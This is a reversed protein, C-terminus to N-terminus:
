EDIVPSNWLLNTYTEGLSEKIKNIENIEDATQSLSWSTELVDGWQIPDYGLEKLVMNTTFIWATKYGTFIKMEELQNKTDISKLSIHDVIDWFFPRLWKRLQKIFQDQLPKVVHRNFNEQSVESSARNSSDAILMDYPMNLAISIAKILDIRYQLLWKVDVKNELDLQKLETPVIATTFSNDDGRLRDKITEQIIKISDESLEANVDMLLKTNIMGHDFFREYHKDIADLVVIQRVCKTFISDGYYRTKLSRAKLHIYRGPLFEKEWHSNIQMLTRDWKLKCEHTLFPLLEIDQPKKKDQWWIVELRYNGCSAISAIAHKVDFDHLLGQLSQITFNDYGKISEKTFEMFGSDANTSIKDIIWWVIFSNEVVNILLYFPTEPEMIWEVVKEKNQQSQYFSSSEGIKLLTVKKDTLAM